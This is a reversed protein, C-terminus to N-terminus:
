NEGNGARAFAERARRVFLEILEPSKRGPSAEVGSSVDVGFPDVATIAEAVNDPGLGGALIIERRAALERATSWDAVQGTGSRPGEFLVRQGAPLTADAAADAAGRLVPWGTVGAPLEIRAFDALDTQLVDPRFVEFVMELLESSPHQTVAVCLVRGRAPRALEAAQQPTVRRVSTAFVFGIADAGAALAASVARTDTMGCIKVFAM